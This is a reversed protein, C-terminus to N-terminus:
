QKAAQSGAITSSLPYAEDYAPKIPVNDIIACSGAVSNNGKRKLAMGLLLNQIVEKVRLSIRPKARKLKVFIVGITDLIHKPIPAPPRTESVKNNGM